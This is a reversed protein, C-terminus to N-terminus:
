TATPHRTLMLGVALRLTGPRLAHGCLGMAVQRHHRGQPRVKRLVRHQHVIGSTHSRGSGMPVGCLWCCGGAFQRCRSHVVSPSCRIIRVGGGPGQTVNGPDNPPSPSPCM